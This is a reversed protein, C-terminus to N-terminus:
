QLHQPHDQQRHEQELVHDVVQVQEVHATERGAREGPGQNTSGEVEVDLPGVEGCLCEGLLVARHETQAEPVHPAGDVYLVHAETLLYIPRLTHAPLHAETITTPRHDTILLLRNVVQQLKGIGIM